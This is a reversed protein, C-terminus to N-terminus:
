KDAELAFKFIDLIDFLSSQHMLVIVEDLPQHHEVSIWSLLLKFFVDLWYSKSIM